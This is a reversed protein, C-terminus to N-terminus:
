PEEDTRHWGDKDDWRYQTCGPVCHYQQLLAQETVKLQRTRYVRLSEEAALLAELLRQHNQWLVRNQQRLEQILESKVKEERRLQQDYKYEDAATREFSKRRQKKAM